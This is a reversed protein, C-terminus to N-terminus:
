TEPHPNPHPNRANEYVLIADREADSVGHLYIETTSRNEHGLIGHEKEAWFRLWTIADSINRYDYFSSDKLSNQFGIFENGYKERMKKLHESKQDDNMGLTITWDNDKSWEALKDENQKALAHLEKNQKEWEKTHTELEGAYGLMVEPDM